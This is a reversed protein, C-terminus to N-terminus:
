GIMPPHGRGSGCRVSLSLKYPEKTRTSSVSTRLPVNRSLLTSAGLLLLPHSRCGERARKELTCGEQIGLAAESVCDVVQSKPPWKPHQNEHRKRALNGVPNGGSAGVPAARRALSIRAPYTPALAPSCCRRQSWCEHRYIQLFLYFFFSNLYLFPGPPSKWHEKRLIRPTGHM